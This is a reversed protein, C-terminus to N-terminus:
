GSGGAESPRARVPEFDPLRDLDIAGVERALRQRLDPSLDSLGPEDFYCLAKLTLQPNFAEGYIIRASALATPLNIGAGLLADIDIYDKAEARRQVTAAKMGALDVLSALKLNNGAAMAPACVQGARPIGFFSVQVPAERDVLCTLTNPSSQLIESGSLFPIEDYLRLPDFSEFAFLDYDISQRHGLYLAIATGGYLTFSPPVRILEDWLSRQAPPLIDLRLTANETM